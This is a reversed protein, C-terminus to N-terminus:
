VPRLKTNRWAQVGDVTVNHNGNALSLIAPREIELIWGGGQTMTKFLDGEIQRSHTGILIYAVRESVLGYCARILDAEGGQIDIHLLDIVRNNIIDGLAIMDLAEYQGNSLLERQQKRSPGFIPSLGWNAGATQQRPFFAKGREAAAIGRILEFQSVDFRNTHMAERAFGLHDEDGEVGILFPRKGARKAAVGTNNMWCGWGCGLEIMTFTEAALDVARLAGAFEAIDAHWNAPIPIPEVSNDLGLGPFFKEVNVAVGLYNVRHGAIARREANEHAHIIGIADICSNYHWFPGAQVRSTFEASEKFALLLAAFSRSKLHGQIVDESEPKRGLFVQYAAIVDERSIRLENM